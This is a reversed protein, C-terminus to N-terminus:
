QLNVTKIRFSEQIATITANFERPELMESLEARNLAIMLRTREIKDTVSNIGTAIVGEYESCDDMAPYAPFAIKLTKREEGSVTVTVVWAANITEKRSAARKCAWLLNKPLGKGSGPVIAEYTAVASIGSDGLPVRGPALSIEAPGRENKEYSGEEVAQLVYGIVLGEGGMGDSSGTSVGFTASGKNPSESGTARAELALKREADLAFGELRLAEGVYLKGPKFAIYGPALPKIVQLDHMNLRKFLDAEIGAAGGLGSPTIAALGLAIQNASGKDLRKLSKEIRIKDDTLAGKGTANFQKSWESGINHQKVPFKLVHYEQGITSRIDVTPNTACASLLLVGLLPLLSLPIKPKHNMRPM